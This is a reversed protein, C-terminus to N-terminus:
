HVLLAIHGSILYHVVARKSPGRFAHQLLRFLPLLAFLVVKLPRLFAVERASGIKESIYDVEKARSKTRPRNMKICNIRFHKDSEIKNM